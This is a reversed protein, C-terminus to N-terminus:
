IEAYLFLSILIVQGIRHALDLRKVGAAALVIASFKKDEDLKKFRTNLNGRKHATFSFFNFFSNATCNWQCIIFILFM